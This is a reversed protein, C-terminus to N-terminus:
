SSIRKLNDLLIGAAVGANLSEVKGFAPITLKHTLLEQLESSIGHSESGILLIGPDLQKVDHINVGELDAGYVPKESGTLYKKIDTYFCNVRTFSGMTSNITKPNYCEVTDESCIIQRIGYWDAIRIITGLNGPDNIRDLALVWEDSDTICDSNEKMHVVAVGYNNSRFTSVKEIDTESCIHCKLSGTYGAVAIESLFLDEIQFDSALLESISKEGEVLFVGFQKRYKKNHLSQIYKQKQKSLGNV